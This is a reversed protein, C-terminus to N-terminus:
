DTLLPMPTAHPIRVRMPRELPPLGSGNSSCWMASEAPLSGATPRKSPSAGDMPSLTSRGAPISGAIRVHCARTDGCCKPRMPERGGSTTPWRSGPLTSRSDFGRRQNPLGTGKGNPWARLFPLRASVSSREVLRSSKARACHCCGMPRSGMDQERSGEGPISGPGRRYWRRARGDHQLPMAIPASSGRSVAKRDLPSTPLRVRLSQKCLM